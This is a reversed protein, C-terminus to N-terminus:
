SFQRAYAAGTAHDTWLIRALVDQLTCAPFIWDGAKTSGVVLTRGALIMRGHIETAFSFYQQENPSALLGEDDVVVLDGDNGFGEADVLDCKLLSYIAELDNLDIEVNKVDRTFPDILITTTM